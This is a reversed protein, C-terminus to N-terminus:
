GATVKEEAPAVELILDAVEESLLLGRIQDVWALTLDEWAYFRVDEAEDATLWVAKMAGNLEAFPVIFGHRATFGNDLNLAETVADYGDEGSQVMKEAVGAQDNFTTMSLQGLVCFTGNELALTKLDVNQFWENDVESLWASGRSVEETFDVSPKNTKSDRVIKM